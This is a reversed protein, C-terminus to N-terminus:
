LAPVRSLLGVNHDRFEQEYRPRVVEEVTTVHKEECAHGDTVMRVEEKQLAKFTAQDYAPPAGPDTATLPESGVIAALKRKLVVDVEDPSGLEYGKKRMCASWATVAQVMAPDALIRADVEDLGAVLSTLLEKGGYATDAGRATCGGLRSFDGSEVADVLTADLNDGSLARDYAARESPDLAARISQNPGSAAHERRREFLTTIGAGFQAAFQTETLGTSSVLAARRGAPDVAVYEFGQAKMCAQVETEARRERGASTAPDIGVQEDLSRPEPDKGAGGGGCAALLVAAAPAM